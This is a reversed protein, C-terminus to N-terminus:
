LLLFNHLLFILSYGNKVAKEYKLLWTNCEKSGPGHTQDVMAMFKMDHIQLYFYETTFTDLISTDAM